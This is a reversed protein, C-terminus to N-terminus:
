VIKKEFSFKLLSLSLNKKYFIERKKKKEFEGGFDMKRAGIGIERGWRGWGLRLIDRIGRRGKWDKANASCHM